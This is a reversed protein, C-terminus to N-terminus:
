VLCVTARLKFGVVEEGQVEEQVLQGEVGGEMTRALRLPPHLWWRLDEAMQDEELVGEVEVVPQNRPLRDLKSLQRKVLRKSNTVQRLPWPPFM